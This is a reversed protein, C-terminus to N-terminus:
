PLSRHVVLARATLGFSEFFNKTDRNGPLVLADIGVAGREHAWTTVHDMMAEGVGVHRAEPATFLDDLVALPEGDAMRDMRVVAYGVVVGDLLGCVVEAAPDQLASALGTEYPPRRGVTRSWIDGGRMPTLEAVAEAALRALEPLDAESAPRAAHM